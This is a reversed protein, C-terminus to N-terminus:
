RRRCFSRTLTDALNRAIKQNSAQSLHLGDAWKPVVNELIAVTDLVKAGTKMAVKEVMDRYPQLKADLAQDQIPPPTLLLTQSGQALRRDVLTTLDGQFADLTRPGDEYGGFNGFDNTGYLIIVVDAPPADAWRAIGEKARDGPFGRNSVIAGKLAEAVAEPFPLRSRLQSAGNIPPLHETGPTTDQGYTLSDGEFALRWGATDCKAQVALSSALLLALIVAARTPVSRFFTM